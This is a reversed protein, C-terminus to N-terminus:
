GPLWWHDLALAIAQFPEAHVVDEAGHADVVIWYGDERRRYIELTRALPDVLWLHGVDERAYIPMKRARDLAATSPSVIECAWDPALTMAPVNPLVPLRERRWGAFDPVLVDDGFHLEPEFLIWWGGPKPPAGPQGHFASVVDAGIVTGTHAHPTAPRPSTILDGAIIEAVMTDPVRMLDDYTARRRPASM